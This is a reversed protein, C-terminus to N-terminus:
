TKMSTFAPVLDVVMVKEAGPAYPKDEMTMSKESALSESCTMMQLGPADRKLRMHRVTAPQVKM